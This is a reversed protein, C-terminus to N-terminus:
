LVDQKNEDLSQLIPYMVGQSTTYSAMISFSLIAALLCIVLIIIEKRSIGKQSNMQHNRESEGIRGRARPELVTIAM